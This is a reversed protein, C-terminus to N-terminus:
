PLWIVAALIHADHLTEVLEIIGVLWIFWLADFMARRFLRPNVNYSEPERFRKLTPLFRPTRACYDIFAPGFTSRLLEEERTIISPYVLLFILPFTLGFSLTETAFGIGAFGLFSFFYMPNRTISYPGSTILESNKYGSIYMACWLRGVTAVGVLVLGTFFLLGELLTGDHASRSFVLLVFLAVAFIRSLLIRHSTVSEAFRGLMGM